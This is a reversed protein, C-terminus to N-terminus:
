RYNLRRAFWEWLWKKPKGVPDFTIVFVMREGQELRCIGRHVIDGGRILLLDGAKPKMKAAPLLSLLPQFPLIYPAPYLFRSQRPSLWQTEGENTNKLTLIASYTGGDIHWKFGENKAQYRQIRLARRTDQMLEVPTQIHQQALPYVREKALTVLEPLHQQLDIGDFVHYPLNMGLKGHIDRFVHEKNQILELYHSIEQQTLFGPFCHAGKQEVQNEQVLANETM